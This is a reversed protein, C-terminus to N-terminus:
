PTATQLRCASKRSPRTHQKTRFILPMCLARVMGLSCRTSAPFTSSKFETRAQPPGGVPDPPLQGAFNPTGFTHNVFTNTQASFISVSANSRDAVYDLQTLPDFFSIDFNVFQGGQHNLTSPPVQIITTLVYTDAQAPSLFVASGLAIVSVAASVAASVTASKMTAEWHPCVPLRWSEVIAKPLALAGPDTTKGPGRSLRGRLHFDGGGTAIKSKGKPQAVSFFSVMLSFHHHKPGTARGTLKNNLARCSPWYFM